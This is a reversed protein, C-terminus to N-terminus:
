VQQQYLGVSTTSHNKIPSNDFISLYLGKNIERGWFTYPYVYMLIFTPVFNFKKIDVTKNMTRIAMSKPKLKQLIGQPLSM